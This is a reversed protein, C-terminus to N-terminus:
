GAPGGAHEEEDDEPLLFVNREHFSSGSPPPPKPTVPVAAERRHRRKTDLSSRAQRSRQPWQLVNGASQPPEASAAPRDVAATRAQTVERAHEVRQSKTMQSPWNSVPDRAGLLELLVPLLETDTRPRLGAERARTLLDEARLDGFAPVESEPPLGTWHLPHWEHTLPDQFFVVRRDRPERRIIWMRKRRGGGAARRGGRSSSEHVYPDLADGYHYLGKIKVGRRGHIRKVQHESFFRYYLEPSPIEM